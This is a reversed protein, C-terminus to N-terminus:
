LDNLFPNNEDETKKIEEYLALLEKAFEPDHFDYNSM